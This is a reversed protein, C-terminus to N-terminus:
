KMNNVVNEFRTNSNPHHSLIKGKSIICFTGFACPSQEATVYDDMEVLVPTLDIIDFGRDQDPKEEEITKLEM